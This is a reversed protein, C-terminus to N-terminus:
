FDYYKSKMMACDKRGDSYYGLDSKHPKDKFYGSQSKEPNIFETIM